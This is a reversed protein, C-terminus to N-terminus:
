NNNTTITLQIKKFDPNALMYHQSNKSHMFFHILPILSLNTSVYIDSIKIM